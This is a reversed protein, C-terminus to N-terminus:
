EFIQANGHAQSEWNVKEKYEVRDITWNCYTKKEWWLCVRSRYLLNYINWRDGFTKSVSKRTFNSDSTGFPLAVHFVNIQISLHTTECPIIYYFPKEKRKRM